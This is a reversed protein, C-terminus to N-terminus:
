FLVEFKWIDTTLIYTTLTYRLIIVVTRLKIWVTWDLLTELAVLGCSFIQKQNRTQLCHGISSMYRHTYEHEDSLIIKTTTLENIWPDQTAVAVLQYIVESDLVELLIQKHKDLCFVLLFKM